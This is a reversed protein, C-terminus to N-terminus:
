CGLAYKSFISHKHVIQMRQGVRNQGFFDLDSSWYFHQIKKNRLFGNSKNNFIFFGVRFATVGSKESLPFVRGAAAGNGWWWNAIICVKHGPTSYDSM